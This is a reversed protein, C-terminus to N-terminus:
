SGGGAPDLPVWLDQQHTDWVGYSTFLASRVVSWGAWGTLALFSVLLAYEVLDQGVEEKWLRRLTTTV